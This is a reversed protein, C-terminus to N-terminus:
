PSDTRAANPTPNESKAAEANQRRRAREREERERLERFYRDHPSLDGPKLGEARLHLAQTEEAQEIRLEDAALALDAPGPRVPAMIGFKSLLTVATRIDGDDVAKGVVSVAQDLVKLLRARASEHLEQRWANYAARFVPDRKIWNHVTVRSVGAAVAAATISSGDVIAAIAAHQAVSLQEALAIAGVPAAPTQPVASEFQPM